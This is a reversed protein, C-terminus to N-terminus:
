PESRRDVVIHLAAPQLADDPSYVPARERFARALPGVRSPLDRQHRQLPDHVAIHVQTALAREGQRPQGVVKRESM